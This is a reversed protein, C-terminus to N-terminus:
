GRRAFANRGPGDYPILGGAASCNRWRRGADSLLRIKYICGAAILLLAGTATWCFLPPDWLRGLIYFPHALGDHVPSFPFDNFYDFLGAHWVPKLFFQIVVALVLYTLAVVALVALGFLWILLRSQKRAHAERDFFDV